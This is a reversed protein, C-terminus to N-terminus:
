PVEAGSRLLPVGEHPVRVPHVGHGQARYCVRKRTSRTRSGGASPEEQSPAPTQIGRPNSNRTEPHPGRSPVPSDCGGRRQLEPRFGAGGRLTGQRWAGAQLRRGSPRPATSKDGGHTVFSRAGHRLVGLGSARTQLPSLPSRGGRRSLARARKVPPEAGAPQTALDGERKKRKKRTLDRQAADDHCWVRAECTM